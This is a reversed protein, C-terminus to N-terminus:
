SCWEPAGLSETSLRIKGPMIRWVIEVRGTVDHGRARGARPHLKVTMLTKVVDRKAGLPMRDWRARVDGDDGVLARRRPPTSAQEARRRADDIRKTLGAEIAALSAPTTQGNVASRRWGDLEATLRDVETRARVATKDDDDGTQRLYGYVAPDSLRG